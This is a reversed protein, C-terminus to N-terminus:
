VIQRIKAPLGFRAACSRQCHARWDRSFGTPEIGVARVHRPAPTRKSCTPVKCPSPVNSDNFFRTATLSRESQM